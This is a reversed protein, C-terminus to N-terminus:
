FALDEITIDSLANSIMIDQNDKVFKIREDVILKIMEIKDKNANLANVLDTIDVKLDAIDRIAEDTKDSVKAILKDLEGIHYNQGEKYIVQLLLRPM